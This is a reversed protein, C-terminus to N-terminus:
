IKLDSGICIRLASGLTNYAQKREIRAKGEEGDYRTQDSINLSNLLKKRCELQVFIKLVFIRIPSIYYFHCRM